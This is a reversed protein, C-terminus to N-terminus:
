DIGGSVIGKYGWGASIYGGLKKGLRLTVGNLHYVMQKKNSHNNYNDITTKINFGLDAGSSLTILPAQLWDVQAGLLLTYRSRTLTYQNSYPDIPWSKKREHEYVFAAQLNFYKVIKYGLKLGWLVNPGFNAGGDYKQFDSPVFAGMQAGLMWRNQLSQNTSPKQSKVCYISSTILAICCLIKKM